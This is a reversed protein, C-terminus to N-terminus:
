QGKLLIEHRCLVCGCDITRPLNCAERSLAASFSPIACDVLDVNHYNLRIEIANGRPPLLEMTLVSM